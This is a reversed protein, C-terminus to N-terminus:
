NCVWNESELHLKKVRQPNCSNIGHVSFILLKLVVGIEPFVSESHFPWGRLEQLTRAGPTNESCSESNLFQDRFAFNWERFPM